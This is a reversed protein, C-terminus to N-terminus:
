VNIAFQLRTNFNAKKLNPREYKTMFVRTAEEITNTQKLAKLANKETTNLEEWIFDLQNQLTPNPGYKSLLATKRSGTWQALGYSNFGDKSVARLNGSSEGMLNGYIGKAQNLTLGKNTFYNVIVNDSGKSEDRYIGSTNNIKKTDGSIRRITKIKKIDTFPTEVVGYKKGKAEITYIQGNEIRSIMQVHNGSPGTGKSCIIDGVKANDLSSVETGVKALEGATRPLNIGIQSYAYKILGSCDFGTSPTMGGWSYKTGVFQRAIDVAQESSSKKTSSQYSPYQIPSSIISSFQSIKTPDGGIESSEYSHSASQIPDQLDIDSFTTFPIISSNDFDKIKQYEETVVKPPNTSRYTPFYERFM